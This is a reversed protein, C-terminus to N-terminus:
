TDISCNSCNLLYPLLQTDFRGTIRIRNSLIYPELANTRQGNIIYAKRNNGALESGVRKNSIDVHTGLFKQAQLIKDPVICIYVYIYVYACM